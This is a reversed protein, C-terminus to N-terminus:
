RYWARRYGRRAAGAYSFPTRPMGIIDIFVSIDAGKDPMEGQLIKVTYTLSGGQLQPDRLVAVVQRLEEGDLISVDANPPDSLFSDKGTSWFPIFKPTNHSRWPNLGIGVMVRKRAVENAAESM